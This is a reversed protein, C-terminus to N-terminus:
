PEETVAAELHVPPLPRAGGAVAAVAARLRSAGATRGALAAIEAMVRATIQRGLERRLTHDERLARDPRLARTPQAAAGAFLGREHAFDLPLGVSLVLRGALPPRGLRRTAPFRLGVPVVPAGSRLVLESLGRRGHRL